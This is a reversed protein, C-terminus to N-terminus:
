NGPPYIYMYQKRHPNYFGWGGIVLAMDMMRHSTHSGEGVEELGHWAQLPLPGIEAPQTSIERAAELSRLKWSVHTGWFFPFNGPFMMMFVGCQSLSFTCFHKKTPLTFFSCVFPQLSLSPQSSILYIDNDSITLPPHNQKVVNCNTPPQNLVLCNKWFEM